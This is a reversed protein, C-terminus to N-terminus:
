DRCRRCGRACSGRARPTDGCGSGDGTILPDGPAAQEHGGPSRGGAPAGVVACPCTPPDGAHSRAAALTRHARRPVGVEPTGRLAPESSLGSQLASPRRFRFRPLLHCAAVLCPAVVGFSGASSGPRFSSACLSPVLPVRVGVLGSSVCCGLGPAFCGLGLGCRGGICGVSGVRPGSWGGAAVLLSCLPVQAGAERALARDAPSRPRLGRGHGPRSGGGSM